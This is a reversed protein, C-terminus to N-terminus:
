TPICSVGEDVQMSHSGDCRAGEEEKLNGEEAGSIDVHARSILM